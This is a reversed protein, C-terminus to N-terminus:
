IMEQHFNVVTLISDAPNGSLGTIKYRGYKAPQPSFAKVHVVEDNLNSYVDAQGDPVVYNTDASQETAPPYASEELQIRISPTGVVSTAQLWVGFSEAFKMLFSYSYVTGQSAVVVANCVKVNAGNKYSM